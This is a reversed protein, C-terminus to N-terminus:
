LFFFIPLRGKNACNKSIYTLNPNAFTQLFASVIKINQLSSPNPEMKKLSHCIMPPNIHLPLQNPGFILLFINVIYM